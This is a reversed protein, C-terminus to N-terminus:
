DDQTDYLDTMYADIKDNIKKFIDYFTEYLYFFTAWVLAPVIIATRILRKEDDTRVRRKM